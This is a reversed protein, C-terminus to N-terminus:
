EDEGLRIIIGSSRGGIKDANLIYQADVAKEIRLKVQELHALSYPDLMAKQELAEEVKNQIRRLRMMALNSIPRYAASFSSESLNLDILRQLHERQLNARLSSIWPKRATSKETPAEDLESWVSASITDLLEPLTLADDDASTRLENDYVQQLTDPNMLSTLVSAQIGM